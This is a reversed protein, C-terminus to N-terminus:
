ALVGGGGRGHPVRRRPTLPRDYRRTPPLTPQRAERRVGGDDDSGGDDDPLSLYAYVCTAASLCALVLIDISGLLASPDFAAFDLPV